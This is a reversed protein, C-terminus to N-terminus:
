QQQWAHKQHLRLRQCRCKTSAQRDSSCYSSRTSSCSQGQSRSKGRSNIVAQLEVALRAKFSPELVAEVRLLSWQLLCNAPPLIPASGVPSSFSSLTPCPNGPVVADRLGTLWNKGVQLGIIKMVLKLRGRSGGRGGVRRGKKM